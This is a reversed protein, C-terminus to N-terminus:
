PGDGSSSGSGPPQEGGPPADTAGRRDRDATMEAEMHQRTAGQATQEAETQHTSTGGHMPEAALKERRRFLRKFLTM